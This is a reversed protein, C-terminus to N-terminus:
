SFYYDLLLDVMRSYSQIGDEVGNLKLSTDSAAESVTNITETSIVEKAENEEWYNEPMFRFWDNSVEVSIKGTLEYGETVNSRYIQNHVYELASILGSYRVEPDDSCMTATFSVFNAEDELIYGKLHAYEHCITQPLNTRVMDDNYNAEMSFPFYIGLLNSQSMFYSFAIPKAKPYYGKLQPYKESATKMAERCKEVPDTTLVFCNNEDRPVKLAYENCQEILMDYLEVLEENTHKGSNFYKESFPTCGYLIFCNFTETVCVFCLIWLATTIAADATKKRLNKKVILLIITLPLGIVLILIGLVILIEGVSFPFLGNIFAFPVTLVPFINETYFDAFTKSCRGLIAFVASFGILALPICYRKKM